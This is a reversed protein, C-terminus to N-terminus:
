FAHYSPQRQLAVSWFSYCCFFRLSVVGKRVRELAPLACDMPVVM